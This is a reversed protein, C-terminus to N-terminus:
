KKQHKSVIDEKHDRM